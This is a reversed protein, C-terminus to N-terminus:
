KSVINLQRYEIRVRINRKVTSRNGQALHEQALVLANQMIPIMRKPNRILEDAWYHNKESFDVFGLSLIYLIDTSPSNLINLIENRKLQLFDSCLQQEIDLTTIM